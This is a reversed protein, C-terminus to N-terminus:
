QSGAYGPERDSRRWASRYQKPTVGFRCRFAEYFRSLSGFGCEMAVDLIKRDTDALLAQAHSLRHRTLYHSVPMGVLRKFLNMAYNPHLGVHNAIDEIRIPDEYNAAIFTAMAEVHTLGRSSPGDPAQWAVDAAGAVGWGSLAMRKLRLHIEALAQQVMRGDGSQCDRQWRAFDAADAAEGRDAVVFDGHLVAHRFGLPLPWRMFEQLPLYAIAIESDDGVAVVQHPVAAWFLAIRRSPVEVERGGIAYTMAAAALYNVEVHSHWHTEPMPAARHREIVLPPEGDRGIGIGDYLM